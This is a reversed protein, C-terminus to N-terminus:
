PALRQMTAGLNTVISLSRGPGGAPDLLHVKGAEGAQHYTAIVSRGDPSFEAGAGGSNAPFRPGIEVVPGGGAAAVVLGELGGDVLRNFVLRKGDPSWAPGWDGTSPGDFIPMRVEGTDVDVVHIRAIGDGDWLGWAIQTGDPSLAPSQWHDIDSPAMIPGLGSGDVGVKYLGYTTRGPGSSVGKFVIERGNPRWQVFADGVGPKPVVSEGAMRLDLTVDTSGDISVVRITPTPGVQSVIALRRDDPSWAYWALQFLPETLPRVDTGDANAMFVSFEGTRAGQRAFTFRTGDHSFTPAVDAEPGGVIVSTQGTLPDFAHIDGDAADHVVGGNRAIGFPAPLRPQSAVFLAAAGFAVVLGAIVFLWAIRPVPALRLTTQMPLWRELSSWAPRQRETRTRRLVADLHDPVRHEADEHLWDSVTRDFGDSRNMGPAGRPHRPRASRRRRAGCADARARPVPAVQRHRAPDPADAAVEPLRCTSTTICSSSRGSRLSSGASAASSSTATPSRRCPTPSPRSPQLPRDVDVDFRRRRVRRIEDICANVLLRHLWADFRDPDRLTPLDRWARVLANQVADTARDTDRLMLWATADLRSIAAGALEAFADHDGRRAREVLDRKM